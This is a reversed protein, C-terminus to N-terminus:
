REAAEDAWVQLMPLAWAERLHRANEEAAGLSRGLAFADAVAGPADAAALARGVEARAALWGVVATVIAAAEDDGVVAGLTRAWRGAVEGVHAPEDLTATGPEVDLRGAAEYEAGWLEISSQLYEAAPAAPSAFPSTM